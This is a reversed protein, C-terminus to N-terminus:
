KNIIDGAAAMAANLIDSNELMMKAMAMVKAAQDKDAVEEKVIRGAVTSDLYKGLDFEGKDAKPAPEFILPLKAAVTEFYEKRFEIGLDARMEKAKDGNFVYSKAEKDWKIPMWKGLVSKFKKPAESNRLKTMAELSGNDDVLARYVLNCFLEQLYDANSSNALTTLRKATLSSTLKKM